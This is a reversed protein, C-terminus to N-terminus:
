GGAKWGPADFISERLDNGDRQGVVGFTEDCRQIRAGYRRRLESWRGGIQTDELVVRGVGDFHDHAEILSDVAGDGLDFLRLEALVLPSARAFELVRELATRGQLGLERLRTTETLIELAADLNPEDGSAWPDQNNTCRIWLRELSPWPAEIIWRRLEEDLLPVQLELVKLQPLPPFVRLESGVIRLAALRPAWMNALALPALSGIKVLDVQQRLNGTEDRVWRGRSIGGLELRILARRPSLQLLPLARALDRRSRPDLEAIRLQQMPLALPHSLVTDLVPVLDRLGLRWRSLDLRNPETGVRAAAIFGHDWAFNIPRDPGDLKGYEGFWRPIWRTLLRNRSDYLRARGPGDVYALTEDIVILEGRVDGRSSLWDGLVSWATRLREPGGPQALDLPDLADIVANALKPEVAAIEERPQEVPRFGQEIKAAIREDFERMAEAEFHESRIIQEGPEGIRGSRIRLRRGEREIEWFREDNEYRPM